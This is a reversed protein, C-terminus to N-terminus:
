KTYLYYNLIRNFNPKELISDNHRSVYRKYNSNSVYIPCENSKSAKVKFYVMKMLVMAQTTVM